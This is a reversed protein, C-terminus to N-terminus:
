GDDRGVRVTEGSTLHRRLDEPAVPKVLHDDFGAARSRERDEPFGYGTLAILVVEHGSPESRLQRALEYGDMGPLGIDVVAVQPRTRRFIELASPGDEAKYVEHGDAELMLGHMERSDANDDVLLVQVRLTSRAQPEAEATDRSPVIRPIRVTFTSGRGLGDSFANVTGGHLEVLRKVLTLGIGLGGKLRDRTRDAQVFLDFMRPLFKPDIGAGEDTVRLVADPGEAHVSVQIARDTATFRLANSVLNGIVQEIRVPDGSIWVPQTQIQVHREAHPGSTAATVGSRVCQALDIHQRDLAIKGTVVRGVDLLDDMLRAMHTVQREIVGRATVAHPERLDSLLLVQIAGGIAGLPNRLEHALMALFEDKERSERQVRAITTMDSVIM